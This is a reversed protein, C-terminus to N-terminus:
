ARTRPVGRLDRPGQRRSSPSERCTPSTAPPTRTVSIQSEKSNTLQAMSTSRKSAIVSFSYLRQDLDPTKM